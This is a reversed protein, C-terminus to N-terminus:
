PGPQVGVVLAGASSGDVDLEYRGPRLGDLELSAGGGAPVALSRPPSTRLVVQHAHGDRSTVSLAITVGAPASVTQPELSARAPIVFSAPLRVNSAGATSPPPATATATASAGAGATGTSSRATTASGAPPTAPTTQSAPATRSTGHPRNSSGCGNISLALLM